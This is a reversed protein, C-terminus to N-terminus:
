LTNNAGDFGKLLYVFEYVEQLATCTGYVLVNALFLLMPKSLLVQAVGDQKVLAPDTCGLSRCEMEAPPDPPKTVFCLVFLMLVLQMVTFLGFVAHMGFADELAGALLGCTGWGLAAFKRVRGFNAAGDGPRSASAELTAVAFADRIGVGM